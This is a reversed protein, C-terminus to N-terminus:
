LRALRAAVQGQHRLKLVIRPVSVLLPIKRMLSRGQVLLCVDVLLVHSVVRQELLLFFLLCLLRVPLSFLLSARHGLLLDLLLAHVLGLHPVVVLADEVVLHVLILHVFLDLGGLLLLEGHHGLLALLHLALLM